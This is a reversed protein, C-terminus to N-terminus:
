SSLNLFICLFIFFLLLDLEAYHTPVERQRTTPPKTRRIVVIVVIEAIHVVVAIAVPVISVVSIPNSRSKVFNYTLCLLQLLHLLVKTFPSNTGSNTLYLDFIIKSTSPQVSRAHNTCVLKMALEVKRITRLNINIFLSSLCLAFYWLLLLFSYLFLLLDLETYHTPVERQRHTPPKTRRIVVIAIIEAIHVVAIAVIVISVVSIPNSRSKVFNYTLRLLQLLHLLVKTFPSNTGSNTLYLDFIIKSTSPQVSRAHNTCVLKM